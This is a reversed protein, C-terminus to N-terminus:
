DINKVMWLECSHHGSNGLPHGLLEFGLKEYAKVAKDLENMTELYIHKYGKSKAYDICKLILTKGLGKGRAEPKLYMKVLEITDPGLGETPFIGAGGLLTADELAVFYISNEVQFLDSLHDTSADFYVTGPKNAKFEELAKRIVQALEANDAPQIERITISM